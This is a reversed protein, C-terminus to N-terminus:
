EDMKLAVDMPIKRIRGFELIMVAFYTIAGTLIMKIKVNMPIYIDFWGHMESRIMVKFLATLMIEEVPILVILAILVVVTTAAIYVKVIESTKYGLIKTMSVSVANKEIIMKSLLYLIAIFIIVSFIDFIYMLKGMSTLLQRSVKTMADKDIVSGIYKEDIDNIKEDSFYGSFYGRGLGLKENMENQDMFLCISGNYDYVGTVAFDYSEDEFEECLTFKDGPGLMFKDAFAKSIYVEGKKIDLPIYNSKESLGYLTVAEKIFGEKEVTDLSYVSFKEAKPTETEVGKKFAMMELMASMKEDEDFVGVPVTLMYQYKCLMNSEIKDSYRQMIEPFTLGFMLILYAFMIGFVMVVYSSVNQFIIRLRFRTFFPLAPPLKFAKKKKRNTLDRRIFQLPTFRLKWVLMSFTVVAMIIIPVFTTEVFAEANWVTVYTPLSYSGYYMKANFDKLFTYGVVNGILASVLTVIVPVAMYHRIMEGRTYGSARLTGIVEAENQITNSITITFVFALIVIVIYLFIRIMAMDSGMDEATFVIAQNAYRPVYEDLKVVDNLGDLFDESKDKEEEKDKYHEKYRWGYCYKCNDAILREFEKSSILAVGFKNADFMMDNNNEFMTSYDTLAVLGSIIFKEGLLEIEDGVSLENNDAFMRDIAIQKEGEPLKGEMLCPFNIETRNKFVRLKSTKGLLVDKYFLEHVKAGLAEIRDKKDRNLATQVVFHGDEQKYLEYGDNYAKIMSKDAVLYGSVEGIMLVMLIFIVAYKGLNGTLERPLRKILPNTRKVM